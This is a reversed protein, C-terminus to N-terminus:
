LLSYFEDESIGATKLIDKLTGPALDRNYMPVTVTAKPHDRRYSAHSGQQRILRFGKKNLVKVLQRPKVSPKGSM